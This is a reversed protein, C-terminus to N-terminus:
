TPSKDKPLQLVCRVLFKYSSLKLPKYKMAQIFSPIAKKYWNALFLEYGHEFWAKYFHQDLESKRISDGSRSEIGWTDVAENMIEARYNRLHPRHSISQTNKRYYAYLTDVQAIQTSAALQLWFDYDQGRRFKPKFQINQLTSKRVLAAIIHYWSTEFLTHYVWGSRHDVLEPQKSDEVAQTDAYQFSEDVHGFKGTVVGFEPHDQLFKVQQHLRNPAWLDDSDNFAIFEGNAHDLGTNRAVASGANEQLIYKVSNGFSKVIEASNDSSGDDVVIIEKSEYSQGLLSDLCDKIHTEANYMPVIISVLPWREAAKENNNNM